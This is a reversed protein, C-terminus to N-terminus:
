GKDEVKEPEKKKQFVKEWGVLKDDEDFFLYAKDGLFFTTNYAKYVWRSLKDSKQFVIVVPEGYRRRVVKALTGKKLKKREIAKNVRLYNRREIKTERAMKSQSSSLALLNKWRGCGSASFILAVIIVLYYIKKLRM